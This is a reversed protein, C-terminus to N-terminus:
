LSIGLLIMTSTRTALVVNQQQQKIQCLAEGVVYGFSVSPKPFSFASHISHIRDGFKRQLRGKAYSEFCFFRFLLGNGESSFSLKDGLNDKYRYTSLTLRHQWHVQRLPHCWRATSVNFLAILKVIFYNANAKFNQTILAATLMLEMYWAYGQWSLWNRKSQRRYVLRILFSGIVTILAEGM